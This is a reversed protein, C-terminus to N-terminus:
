LVILLGICGITKLFANKQMITNLSSQNLLIYTVIYTDM